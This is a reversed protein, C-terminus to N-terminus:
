WAAPMLMAGWWGQLAASRVAVRMHARKRLVYICSRTHWAAVSSADAHRVVVRAGSWMHALMAKTSSGLLWDAMTDPQEKIKYAEFGKVFWPIKLSCRARADLPRAATDPHECHVGHAAINPHECHVGHERTWLALQLTLINVIFVMLQLILINVTFVTSEHGPPSSCFGSSGGALEVSALCTCTLLAQLPFPSLCCLQAYYTMFLITLMALLTSPPFLVLLSSSDM